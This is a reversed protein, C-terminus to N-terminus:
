MTTRDSVVREEAVLRYGLGPETLVYRPKAPDPEVKQRIAKIYARLGRTDEIRDPGWVEKILQDRTVVLGGARALCTLLRYELPTFHLPKGDASSADRGTLNVDAVGIRISPSPDTIRAGRRLAARVRAVLEGADFPKTVYDDAGNDLARIKEAEMSRASLVLIPVTSFGRIARILGQGDRDPLGLDLLVVDPRYSKADALGRAATDAEIITFRESGLLARVVRRIDPDDEVVLVRFRTDTM